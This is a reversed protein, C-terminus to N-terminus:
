QLPVSFVFFLIPPIAKPPLIFIYKGIRGGFAIRGMRNKTQETGRHHFKNRAEDHILIKSETIRTL